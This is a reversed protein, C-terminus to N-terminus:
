AKGSGNDNDNSGPKGTNVSCVGSNDEPVAEMDGINVAQGNTPNEHSPRAPSIPVTDPSTATMPDLAQGCSEARVCDTGLSTTAESSTSSEIVREAGDMGVEDGTPGPVAEASVAYPGSVVPLVVPAQVQVVTAAVSDTTGVTTVSSSMASTPYNAYLASSNSLVPTLSAALGSSQQMIVETVQSATPPPPPSLFYTAVEQQQPTSTAAQQSYYEANPVLYQGDATYMMGPPPYLAQLPASTASGVATPNQLQDQTAITVLGVDHSNSLEAAAASTAAVNGLSDLSSGDSGPSM